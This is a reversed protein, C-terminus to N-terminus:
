LLRKSKDNVKLFSIQIGELNKTVTEKINEVSSSADDSTPSLIVVENSNNTPPQLIRSDTSHSNLKKAADAFTQMSEDNPIKSVFSELKTDVSSTISGIKKDISENVSKLIEAKLKDFSESLINRFDVQNTSDADFTGSVVTKTSSLNPKNHFMCVLAKCVDFKNVYQFSDIDILDPDTNVIDDTTADKTFKM